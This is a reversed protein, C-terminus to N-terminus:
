LLLFTIGWKDFARYCSMPGGLGRQWRRVCQLRSFEFARGNDVESDHGMVHKKVFSYIGSIYTTKPNDEDSSSSENM